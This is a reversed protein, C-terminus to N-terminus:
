FRLVSLFSGPELGILAKCRVTLVGRGSGTIRKLISLYIFRELLEYLIKANIYM